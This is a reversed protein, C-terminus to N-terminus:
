RAPPGLIRDVTWDESRRGHPSHWTQTGRCRYKRDRTSRWCRASSDWTVPAGCWSCVGSLNDSSMADM